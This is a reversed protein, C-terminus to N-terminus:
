SMKLMLPLVKPVPLMFNQCLIERFFKTIVNKIIRLELRNRTDNWLVILTSKRLLTALISYFIVPVM